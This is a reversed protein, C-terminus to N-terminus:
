GMWLAVDETCTRSRVEGLLELSCPVMCSEGSADRVWSVEMVRMAPCLARTKSSQVEVGLAHLFNKQDKDSHLPLIKM